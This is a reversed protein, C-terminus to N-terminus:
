KKIISITISNLRGTAENYTVDEVNIKTASMWCNQYMQAISTYTKGNTTNIVTVKDDLRKDGGKVVSAYWKRDSRNEFSKDIKKQLEAIEMKAVTKPEEKAPKVIDNINASYAYNGDEYIAKIYYRGDKAYYKNSNFRGNTSTLVLVTDNDMTYLEFQRVDYDYDANVVVKFAFGNETLDKELVSFSAEFPQLPEQEVVKVTVNTSVKDEPTSPTVDNETAVDSTEAIIDIDTAVSPTQDEGVVSNTVFFGIVAMVVSLLLKWVM